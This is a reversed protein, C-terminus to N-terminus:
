PVAGGQESTAATEKPFPRKSFDKSPYSHNSAQEGKGRLSPSSRLPQVHTYGTHPLGSSLSSVGLSHSDAEPTRELQARDTHPSLHSGAHHGTSTRLQVLERFSLRPKFLPCIVWSSALLLLNTLQSFPSCSARAHLIGM